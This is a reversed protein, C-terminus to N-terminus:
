IAEIWYSVNETDSVRDCNTWINWDFKNLALESSLRQAEKEAKRIGAGNCFVGLSIIQQSSKSQKSNPRPPLMGRLSLKKGRRFIKIGANSTKLRGNAAELMKEIKDM